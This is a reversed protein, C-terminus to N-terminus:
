HLAIREAESSRSLATKNTTSRCIQLSTARSPAESIMLGLTQLCARVRDNRKSKPDEKRFFSITSHHLHPTGQPVLKLRSVRGGNQHPEPQPCLTLLLSCPHNQSSPLPDM